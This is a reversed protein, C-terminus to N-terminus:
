LSICFRTDSDTAVRNECSPRCVCAELTVSSCPAPCSLLSVRYCTLSYMPNLHGLTPTQASPLPTYMSFTSVDLVFTRFNLLFPQGVVVSYPAKLRPFPRKMAWCQLTVCRRGSRAIQYCTLLTLSTFVAGGYTPNLILINRWSAQDPLVRVSATSGVDNFNVEHRV